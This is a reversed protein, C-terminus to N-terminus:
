SPTLQLPPVMFHHFWCKVVFRPKTCWMVSLILTPLHSKISLNCSRQSCGWETLWCIYGELDGWVGFYFTSFSSRFTFKYHPSLIDFNNKSKEKGFVFKHIQNLFFFFFLSSSFWSHLFIHISFWVSLAILDLNAM